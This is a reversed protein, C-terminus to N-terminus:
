LVRWTRQTAPDVPVTGVIARMCSRQWKAEAHLWSLLAAQQELEVAWARASDLQRALNVAEPYDDAIAEAIRQAEAPCEGCERALYETLAEVDDSM